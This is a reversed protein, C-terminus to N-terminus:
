GVSIPENVPFFRHYAIRNKDYCTASKNFNLEM